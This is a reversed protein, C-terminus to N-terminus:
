VSFSSLLAAGADCFVVQGTVYRSRPHALFTATAALDGATAPDPLLAAPGDATSMVEWGDDRLLEAVAGTVPTTPTLLARPM